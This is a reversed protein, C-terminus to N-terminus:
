SWNRAMSDFAVKTQAYSANRHTWATQGGADWWVQIQNGARYLKGGKIPRMESSKKRIDIDVNAPIAELLPETQDWTPQFPPEMKPPPDAIPPQFPDPGVEIVKPEGPKLIRRFTKNSGAM